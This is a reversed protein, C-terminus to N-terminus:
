IEGMIKRVLELLSQMLPVSMWLIVVTAMIQLSKGLAANGSDNCILIAIEAVLGIGVAKLMVGSLTSDMQALTQLERVFDIVPEIYRFAAVLIMCCVIMSLVLAMDKSGRGVAIGLVVTLLVGATVQWFLEM